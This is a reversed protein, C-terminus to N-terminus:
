SRQRGRYDFTGIAGKTRAAQSGNIARKRQRFAASASRTRCRDSCFRAGRRKGVIPGACTACASEDGIQRHIQEGKRDPLSAPVAVKGGAPAANIPLSTAEDFELAGQRREASLAPLVLVPWKSWFRQVASGAAHDEV